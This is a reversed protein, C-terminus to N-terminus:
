HLTNEERRGYNYPGACLCNDVRRMFIYPDHIFKVKAWEFHKLNVEKAREKSAQVAALSCIGFLDSATKCISVLFVYKVLNQLEAGSFGATGRALIM